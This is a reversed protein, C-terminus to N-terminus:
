RRRRLVGRGALGALFLLLLCWAGAQTVAGRDARLVCGGGGGGGGGGVVVGGGTDVSLVDSFIAIFGDRGGNYSVDYGGGGVPFVGDTDGSLVVQNNPGRAVCRIRDTGPGGLYTSYLLGLQPDHVAFYADVGSANRAQVVNSGSVPFNTSTTNGGTYINGASDLAIGSGEEDGAGGLFTARQVSSGDAALIALTADFMGGGYLPQAAGNSVPVDGARAQTVNAVLHARGGPDVALADNGAVTAWLYTSYVLDSGDATFRTVGGEGDWWQYGNGDLMMDYANPTVPFNTSNSIGAAFVSGDTHVVLNGYFNEEGSGGAFTSWIVGSGDASLKTVFADIQGGAYVDQYANNTVPFNTSGTRGTMYINNQGDLKIGGRTWDTNQGDDSGLLTSFRLTMLDPSFKALFVDTVGGLTRDFANSTTPFDPSETIGSLYIDGSDDVAIGYGRDNNVGGLYRLALLQGLDPSFKAVFADQDGAFAAGTSRPLNASKTNGAIYIFGNTDIACGQARDFDSGGIYTARELRVEALPQGPLVVAILMSLGCVREVLKAHVKM